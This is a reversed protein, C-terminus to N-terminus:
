HQMKGPRIRLFVHFSTPGSGYIPKLGDPVHYFTVDAGIGFRVKEQAVIDRVGGFTVAGVRFFQDFRDGLM